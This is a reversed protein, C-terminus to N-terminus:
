YTLLKRTPIYGTAEIQKILDTVNAVLNNELLAALVDRTTQATVRLNQACRLGAHDDLIATAGLKKALIVVDFEERDIKFGCCTLGKSVSESRSRPPQGHQQGRYPAIDADAIEQVTLWALEDLDPVKVLGFLPFAARTQQEVSRPVM